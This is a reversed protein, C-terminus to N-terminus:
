YIMEQLKFIKKFFSKGSHLCFTVSHCCASSNSCSCCCSPVQILLLVTESQMSHPTDNERSVLFTLMGRVTIRNRSLVRWKERERGEGVEGGEGRLMVTSRTTSHAAILATVVFSLEREALSATEM